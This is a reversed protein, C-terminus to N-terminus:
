VWHLYAYNKKKKVIRRFTMDISSNDRMRVDYVVFRQLDEIGESDDSVNAFSVSGGPM